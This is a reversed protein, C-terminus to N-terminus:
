GAEELMDPNYYLVPTSLGYSLGVLEGDVSRGLDVVNEAFNNEIFDKDDEDMAAVENIPTYPIDEDVTTLFNYGIQAVDPPNGGSIGSQIKQMVGEYNDPTYKAEVQIDDHSENFDNVIAEIADGGWDSDNVHRYEIEIPEDDSSSSSSSCGVGVILLVLFILSLSFYRYYNRKM